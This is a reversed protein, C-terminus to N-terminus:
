ALLDRIVGLQLQAEASKTPSRYGALALRNVQSQLQQLALARQPSLERPTTRKPQEADEGVAAERNEEEVAATTDEADEDKAPAPAGAAPAPSPLAQMPRAPATGPPVKLADAGYIELPM